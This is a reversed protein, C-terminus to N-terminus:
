KFIPSPGRVPLEITSEFLMKDDNLDIVVPHRPAQSDLSGEADTMVTAPRPPPKDWCIESMWSGTELEVNAPRFVSTAADAAITLLAEPGENKEGENDEGTLTLDGTVAPKTNSADKKPIADNSTSASASAAEAAAKRAKLEKKHAATAKIQEAAGPVASWPVHPLAPIDKNNGKDWVIADEWNMHALRYHRHPELQEQFLPKKASALKGDSEKAPSQNCVASGTTVTDAEAGDKSPATTEDAAATDAGVHIVHLSWHSCARNAKKISNSSSGGGERERERDILRPVRGAQVAGRWAM